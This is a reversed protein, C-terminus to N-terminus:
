SDLDPQEALEALIAEKVRAVARLVPASPANSLDHNELEIGYLVIHEPLDGLAEGLALADAVGMGHSSLLPRGAIIDKGALRHVTGGRAGTRVADVLIVGRAGRMLELLGAGPRDSVLIEVQDQDSTEILLAQRLLQAVL